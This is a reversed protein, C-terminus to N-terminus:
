NFRTRKTSLYLKGEGRSVNTWENMWWSSSSIDLVSIELTTEMEPEIDNFTKERGRWERLWQEASGKHIWINCVIKKKKKRMGKKTHTDRYLRQWERSRVKITMQCLRERGKRVNEDRERKSKNAKQTSHIYSIPICLSSVM